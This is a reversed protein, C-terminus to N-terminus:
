LVIAGASAATAQTLCAADAISLVRDPRCRQVWSVGAHLFAFAGTAYPPTRLLIRVWATGVKIPM